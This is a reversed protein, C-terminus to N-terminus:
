ADSPKTVLRVELSDRNWDFGHRERMKSAFKEAAEGSRFPGYVEVPEWLDLNERTYDVIWTSM